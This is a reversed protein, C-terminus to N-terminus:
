WGSEDDKDVESEAAPPHDRKPIPPNMNATRRLLMLGGVVIGLVLAFVLLARLM